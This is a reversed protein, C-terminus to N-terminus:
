KRGVALHGAADVVYIDMGMFQDRDKIRIIKPGYLLQAEMLDRLQKREIIGLYLIDPDLGTEHIFKNRARNICDCARGLDSLAAAQSLYESM